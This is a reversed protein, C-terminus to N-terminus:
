RVGLERVIERVVAEPPQSADVVLADDPEELTEFQSDVLSAPMFHDSRAAVRARILERDAKLYVFRVDHLGERLALRFERQLASCALVADGRAHQATALADRIAQLWAVRDAPELPTGGRMKAVNAASHFDDAEFFPWGREAAVARGVLTKGAGSVGM